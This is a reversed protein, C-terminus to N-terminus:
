YTNAPLPALSRRSGKTSEKLEDHNYTNDMSLMRVRHEIVPFGGVPEGAVRQTPSDATILAPHEKELTELQKLMADYEGDSIEPSNEVYYLRDHRRLEVKLREILQKADATM